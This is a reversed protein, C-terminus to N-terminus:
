VFRKLDFNDRIEDINFANVIELPISNIFDENKNKITAKRYYFAFVFIRM